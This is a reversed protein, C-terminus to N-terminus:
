LNLLVIAGMSLVMGIYDLKTLKEHLIVANVFNIFVVVGLGYTIYAMYAPIDYIARILFKTSMYNSVGLVLGCMVDWKNIREHSMFYVIICILLAVVFTASLFLDELSHECYAEFIKSMMDAMGSLLLMPILLWRFHTNTVENGAGKTPISIVLLSAVAVVVGTSQLSNPYENFLFISFLVPIMLGMHSLSASVTAGNKKINLQLMLFASVYFIGNIVAFMPMMGLTSRDLGGLGRVVLMSGFLVAVIYNVLLLSVKNTTKSESFKIILSNSSSCFVALLLNIM